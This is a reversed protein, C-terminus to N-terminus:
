KLFPSQLFHSDHQLLDRHASSVQCREQEHRNHVCFRWFENESSDVYILLAFSLEGSLLM